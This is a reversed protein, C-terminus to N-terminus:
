NTTYQWTGLRHTQCDTFPKKGPNSEPEMNQSEPADMNDNRVVRSFLCSGFKPKKQNLILDKCITLLEELRLTPLHYKLLDQLATNVGRRFIIAAIKEELQTCAKLKLFDNIYEQIIYQGQKIELLTTLTHHRVDQEDVTGMIEAEFRSCDLCFKIDKTTAKGFWDITDGPLMTAVGLVKKTIACHSEELTLKGLQPMDVKTTTQSVIMNQVQSTTPNHPKTGIASDKSEKSNQTRM